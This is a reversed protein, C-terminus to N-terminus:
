KLHSVAEGSIASNAPALTKLKQWAVRAKADQGRGELVLALLRRTQLDNEDKAALPQLLSEADKLYQAKDISSDAGMTAQYYLANALRVQLNADGPLMKLAERYALVSEKYQNATLEQEAKQNLLSALEVRIADRDALLRGSELQTKLLQIAESSKGTSFLERAKAITEANSISKTQFDLSAVSASAVGSSTMDPIGNGPFKRAVDFCAFGFLVIMAMYVAAFALKRKDLQGAAELFGDIGAALVDEVDTPRKSKRVTASSRSAKKSTASPKVIRSAASQAEDTEVDDEDFTVSGSSLSSNAARDLYEQLDSEPKFVTAQTSTKSLDETADLELSIGSPTSRPSKWSELGQQLINTLRRTAVGAKSTKESAAEFARRAIQSIAERGSFADASEYNEYYPRETDATSAPVAKPRTGTSASVPRGELAMALRNRIDKRLPAVGKAKRLIAVAEQGDGAALAEDALELLDDVDITPRNM